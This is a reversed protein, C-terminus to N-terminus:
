LEEKLKNLNYILRKIAKDRIVKIVIIVVNVGRIRGKLYGDVKLEKDEFNPYIQVFEGVVPYLVGAVALVQGTDSPNDFGFSIIAKKKRPLIHKCTTCVYEKVKEIGRATSPRDLFDSVLSIKYILSKTADFLDKILGFFKIFMDKIYCFVKKIKLVIIRLWNKPNLVDLIKKIYEVFRLRKSKKVGMKINNSMDKKSICEDDTDYTEILGEPIKNDEDFLDSINVVDEVDDNENETTEDYEEFDSNNTKNQLINELIRCRIGFIRVEFSVGSLSINIRIKLLKLIWSVEVYHCNIDEMEDNYVLRYIYRIPVFLVLLVLVLAIALLVLM